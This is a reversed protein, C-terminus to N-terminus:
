YSNSQVAKLAIMAVGIAPPKTCRRIPIGVIRQRIKQWTINKSGGGLTIIRKPKSVGLNILTNWGKAEINALGEFLAHLYAADSIPRPELIPELNPDNIPFREGKFPLPLLKLNSKFKPDIQASLDKIEQENFFKKLIRGGTNSSGGCIWNGSVFHNTIGEGEIPSQIIKKLVITSGLVTIGEEKSPNSAIVAANSDTTGAIILLNVPLGLFKAQNTDILGLLNGSPIIKPLTNRWSQNDYSKPWTKSIIDWGLKINNGEEGSEWVGTLWSSVWDAQHRLIIHNGYKNVLKLARSLSNFNRNTQKDTLKNILEKNEFNVKDYTIAQGYPNGNKDCAILTGSTGDISCSKIRSKLKQPIELILTECCTKWDEWKELGNPYNISASYILEIKTNILVVRVGSTGLDIGM